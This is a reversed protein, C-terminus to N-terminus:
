DDDPLSASHGVYVQQPSEAEAALRARVRLGVEALVPASPALQSRVDDGSLISPGPLDNKPTAM